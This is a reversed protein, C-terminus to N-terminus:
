GSVVWTISDVSGLSNMGFTGGSTVVGKSERWAKAAATLTDYSGELGAITVGDAYTANKDYENSISDFEHELQTAYVTIAIGDISLGM